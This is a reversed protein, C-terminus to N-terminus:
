ASCTQLLCSAGPHCPEPRTPLRRVLGIPKDPPQRLRLKWAHHEIHLVGHLVLLDCPLAWWTPFGFVFGDPKDLEHVDMIPYDPPPPAHMQVPM